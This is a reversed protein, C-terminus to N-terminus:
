RWKASFRQCPTWFYALFLGAPKIHWKSAGKEATPIWVAIRSLEFLRDYFGTCILNKGLFVLYQRVSFEFWSNWFIILIPIFFNSIAFMTVIHCFSSHVFFSNRPLKMRIGQMDKSLTSQLRSVLSKMNIIEKAFSPNFLNRHWVFSAEPDFRLRIRGFYSTNQDFNRHQTLLVDM